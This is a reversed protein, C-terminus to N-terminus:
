SHHASQSGAAPSDRQRRSHHRRRPSLRAVHLQQLAPANSRGHGLSRLHVQRRWGSVQCFRSLLWNHPSIRSSVQILVQLGPEAASERSHYKESVPRLSLLPLRVHNGSSCVLLDGADRLSLDEPVGDVFHSKYKGRRQVLRRVPAVFACGMHGCLIGGLLIPRRLLVQRDRHLLSRIRRAGRISFLHM